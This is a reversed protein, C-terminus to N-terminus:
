TQCWAPSSYRTLFIEKTKGNSLKYIVNSPIDSFLYYGAENWVPGETFRCADDWKKIEFDLNIFDLLADDFVALAPQM